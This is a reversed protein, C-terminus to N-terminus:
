KWTNGKNVEVETFIDQSKPVQNFQNIAKERFAYQQLTAWKEMPGVPPGLLDVNLPHHNTKGCRYCPRSQRWNLQVPVKSVQLINSGQLAKSDKEAAEM